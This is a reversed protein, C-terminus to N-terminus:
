GKNHVKSKNKIKLKFVNLVNICMREATKTIDVIVFNVIIISIIRMNKEQNKLYLFHKFLDEDCETYFPTQKYYKWWELIYDYKSIEYHLMWPKNVSVYHFIGPNEYAKKKNIKNPSKRRYAGKIVNWRYDIYKVNTDLVANLADQDQFELPSEKAMFDWLKQVVGDKRIKKLNLLLAGANFYDMSKKHLKKTIYTYFDQNSIQTKEKRRIIFEEVAIDHSVGAYVDEIDTNFLKELDDLVLIDADLYLIKEYQSFIEPIFFRFYTEASIYNYNERKSLYKELDFNKVVNSMDVFNFEANSYKQKISLLKEKNTNDIDRSLINFEYSASSASLISVIVTALQKAYTNNIAFVIPIRNKLM